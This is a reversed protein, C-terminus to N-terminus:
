LTPAQPAPPSASVLVLCASSARAAVRDIADLADEYEKGSDRAASTRNLEDRLDTLERFWSGMIKHAHARVMRFPVPYARCIALYERLLECCQLLGTHRLQTVM